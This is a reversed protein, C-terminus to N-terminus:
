PVAWLPGSSRTTPRWAPSNGMSTLPTSLCTPGSPKPWCTSSRCLALAAVGTLSVKSGKRHLKDQGIEADCQILRAMGWGHRLGVAIGRFLVWSEAWLVQRTLRSLWTSSASLGHRFGRLKTVTAWVRRGGQSAVLSAFDSGGIESIKARVKGMSLMRWDVKGEAEPECGELLSGLGQGNNRKAHDAAAKGFARVAPCRAHGPGKGGAPRGPGPTM